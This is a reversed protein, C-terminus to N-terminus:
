TLCVHEQWIYFMEVCLAFNKQDKFTSKPKLGVQLSLGLNVNPGFFIEAAGAMIHKHQVIRVFPM